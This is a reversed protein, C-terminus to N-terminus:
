PRESIPAQSLRYREEPIGGQGAPQEPRAPSGRASSPQLFPEAQHPTPWTSMEDDEESVGSARRWLAPSKRPGSLLSARGHRAQRRDSGVTAIAYRAPLPHGEM